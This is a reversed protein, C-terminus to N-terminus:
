HSAPSWCSTHSRRTKSGVCTWQEVMGSDRDARRDWERTVAHLM